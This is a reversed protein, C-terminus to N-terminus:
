LKHQFYVLDYNILVVYSSLFIKELKHTDSCTLFHIFLHNNKLGCKHVYLNFQSLHSSVARWVCSEFNSGPRDSASCAVERDCLSGVISFRLSHAPFFCKDRQYRFALTPYSVRWTPLKLWQVRAGALALKFRQYYMHLYRLGSPRTIFRTSSQDRQM